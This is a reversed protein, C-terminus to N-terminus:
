LPKVESIRWRRLGVSSRRVLGHVSPRSAHKSSHFRLRGDETVPVTIRSPAHPGSDTAQEDTVRTLSRKGFAFVSFSNFLGYSGGFSGVVLGEDIDIYAVSAPIARMHMM